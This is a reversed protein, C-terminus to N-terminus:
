CFLHTPRRGNLKLKLCGACHDNTDLGSFTTKLEPTLIGNLEGKDEDEENKEEENVKIRQGLEELHRPRLMKRKKSSVTEKM